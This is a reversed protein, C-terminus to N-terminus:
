VIRPRSVRFRKPLALAVAAAINAPQAMIIGNKTAAAPHCSYRTTDEVLRMAM